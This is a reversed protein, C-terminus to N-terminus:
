VAGAELKPARVEGSMLRQARLQGQEVRVVGLFSAEFYARAQAPAGMAPWASAQGQQLAAAQRDDLSLKPLSAALTDCALLCRLREPASLAELREFPLASALSLAGSAERRLRLVHAGCGLQAGIQEALTRIYTGKSCTVAIDAEDGRLAILQLAHITVQRPEREVEIGERAYEYLAIGNRKLASYMPPTQVIQGRLTALAQEVRASDMDVAHRALERGERDGTDTSVGLKLTAFYRKDANLAFGSFKTAEGFCIPLLGSALPDLTGTHGAKEANFLRKLQQLAHNSSIGEAKDLLLVGDIRQKPQKARVRASDSLPESM